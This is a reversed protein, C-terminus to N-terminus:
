AYAMALEHERIPKAYTRILLSKKLQLLKEQILGKSVYFNLKSNEASITEVLFGEPIQSNLLASFLSQKMQHVNSSLKNSLLLSKVILWHSLRIAHSESINNSISTILRDNQILIEKAESELRSMWTSNCDRCVLKTTYGHSNEKKGQSTAKELISKLSEDGFNSFQFGEFITQPIYPRFWKPFIHEKSLDESQCFLCKPKEFAISFIVKEDNKLGNITNLIHRFQNEYIKPIEIDSYQNSTDPYLKETSKQKSVSIKTQGHPQVYELFNTRVFDHWGTKVSLCIFPDSNVWFSYKGTNIAFAISISVTNLSLVQSEKTFLFYQCPVQTPVLVEIIENPDKLKQSIM